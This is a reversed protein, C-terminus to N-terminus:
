TSAVGLVTTGATVEPMSLYHSHSDSAEQEPAIPLHFGDNKGAEARRALDVCTSFNANKRRKSKKM